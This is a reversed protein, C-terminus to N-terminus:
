YTLLGLLHLRSVIDVSLTKLVESWVGVKSKYKLLRRNFQEFYGALALSSMLIIQDVFCYTMNASFNTLLILGATWPSYPILNYVQPFKRTMYLHFMSISPPHESFFISYPLYAVHSVTSLISYM